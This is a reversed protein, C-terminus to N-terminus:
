NAAAADIVLWAKFLTDPHQTPNGTECTKKTKRFVFSFPICLWNQLIKCTKRILITQSIENQKM